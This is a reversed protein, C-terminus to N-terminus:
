VLSNWQGQYFQFSLSLFPQLTIVHSGRQAYFFSFFQLDSILTVSHSTKNVIKIMYGDIHVEPFVVRSCQDTLIYTNSMKTNIPLILDETLLKIIPPDNNEISKIDSTLVNIQQQLSHMKSMIVAYQQQSRMSSM